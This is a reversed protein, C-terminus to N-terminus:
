WWLHFFFDRLADFGENFKKRYEEDKEFKMADDFREWKLYEGFTWLMKDIAEKFPQEEPHDLDIINFDLFARLRTYMFIALTTRLSWTEKSSFGLERIQKRFLNYHKETKKGPGLMFEYDEPDIGLEKLYPNDKSVIAGNM